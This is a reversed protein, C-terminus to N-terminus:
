RATWADIAGWGVAGLPRLHRFRRADMGGLAAVPVGRLRRALLGFRVPGLARAGPHSRTAFVPSLLLLDAGSRAAARGERLGHVPATRVLPRAPRGSSRGHVGDARWGAAQAPRGALVLVLGRARALARVRRFLARRDAPPLRYHRFVVGGGRPLRRLAPWLADGLREDTFLWATPLTQRAPM